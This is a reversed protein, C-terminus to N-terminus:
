RKSSQLLFTEREKARNEKGDKEGHLTDTAKDKEEEEVM